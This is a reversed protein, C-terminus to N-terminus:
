KVCFLYLSIFTKIFFKLQRILYKSFPLEGPESSLGECLKHLLTAITNNTAIDM